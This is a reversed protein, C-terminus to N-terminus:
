ATVGGDQRPDARDCDADLTVEFSNNYGQGKQTVGTVKPAHHMQADLWLQVAEIMTATNLIIDNKGQM